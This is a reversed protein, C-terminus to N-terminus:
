FRTTLATLWAPSWDVLLAEIQRDHGSLILLGLLVLLGGLLIKGFRGAALGARRWTGSAGGDGVHDRWYGLGMGIVLLPLSAGLGFVLMMLAVSALDQRQAALTAAAGLTPGVCPSWVVGLLLGLVLQGGIGSPSYSQARDQLGVGPLRGLLATVYAQLGPFLMLAGFVLLFVAGIRRFLDGDLGLSFGITAVFLGVLVFSLALGLSLAIAGLRHAALASGLVIPLLPLVCPSLISLIGALFGFGYSAFTFDPAPM